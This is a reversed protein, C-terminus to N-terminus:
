ITKYLTDFIIMYLASSPAIHLVRPLWGRVWVGAGGEQMMARIASGITKYSEENHGRTIMRTKIVDCPITAIATITGAVAGATGASVNNERKFKEYVMWHVIGFPIDHVLTQAAFNRRNFFISVNSSKLSKLNEISGTQMRQKVTEMPVRIVSGALEACIGALGFGMSGPFIPVLKDRAVTYTTMYVSQYPAYLLIKPVLGRFLNNYGGITGGFQIRAKITDMPFLVTKTITSSVAACIATKSLSTSGIEHWDFMDLFCSFILHVFTKM